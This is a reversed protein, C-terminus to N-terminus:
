DDDGNRVISTATEDNKGAACARGDHTPARTSSLYADFSSLM